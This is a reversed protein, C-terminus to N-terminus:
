RVPLRALEARLGASSERVTQELALLAHGLALALLITETGPVPPDDLRLTATRLAEEAKARHDTM